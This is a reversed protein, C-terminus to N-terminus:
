SGNKGKETTIEVTGRHNYCRKIKKEITHAVRLITIWGIVCISEVYVANYSLKYAQTFTVTASLWFQFGTSHCDFGLVFQMELPAWVPTPGRVGVLIYLADSVGFGFVTSKLM